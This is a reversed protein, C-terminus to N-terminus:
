TMSAPDVVIFAEFPFATANANVSDAAATPATNAAHPPPSDVGVGSPFAALPEDLPEEPPLEPLLGPSAPPMVGPSLVTLVDAPEHVLGVTCIKNEGIYEAYM